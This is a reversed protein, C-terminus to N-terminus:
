GFVRWLIRAVINRGVSVNDYYKGVADEIQFLIQNEDVDNMRDLTYVFKLDNIVCEVNEVHLNVYQDTM